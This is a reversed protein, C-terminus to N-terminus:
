HGYRTKTQVPKRAAKCTLLVGAVSISRLNSDGRSLSLHTQRRALLLGAGQDQFIAGDQM